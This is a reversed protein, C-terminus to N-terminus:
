RTAEPIQKKNYVDHKYKSKQQRDKKILQLPMVLGMMGVPRLGTSPESGTSLLLKTFLHFFSHDIFAYILM